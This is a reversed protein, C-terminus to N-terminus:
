VIEGVRMSTKMAKNLISPWEDRSKLFLYSENDDFDELDSKVGICPSTINSVSVLSLLPRNSNQDMMKKAKFFLKSKEHASFNCINGLNDPYTSDLSKEVMHVIAVIGGSPV